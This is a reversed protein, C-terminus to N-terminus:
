ASLYANGHEPNAPHGVYRGEEPVAVAVFNRALANLAARMQTGRMAPGHGTIVVEPELAALKEVSTKAAEWDPTFYMPPGHMEPTQM